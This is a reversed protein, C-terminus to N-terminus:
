PVPGSRAGPPAAGLFRIARLRGHDERVAVGRVGEVQQRAWLEYPAVFGDALEKYNTTVSMTTFSVTRPPINVVEFVSRRLLFRDMDLFLSGQVDASTVTQAPVFDIRHMSWDGLREVGAYRFCHVDAFADGALDTLGPMSFEAAAPGRAAPTIRLVEGVRYARRETPRLTDVRSSEHVVQGNRALLKREMAFHAEAPFAERLQVFREVNARFEDLLAALEPTDAAADFGPRTCAEPGATVRLGALQIVRPTLRLVVEGGAAPASVVTDLPVFGIQRVRVRQTGAPLGRVVFTGDQGGFAPPADGVAVSPLVVPAGSDASVIRLTLEQAALAPVSSLVALAAILVGPPTRM